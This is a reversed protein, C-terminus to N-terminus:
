LEDEQIKKHRKLFVVIAILSIVVLMGLYKYLRERKLTNIQAMSREVDKYQVIQQQDYTSLAEYAKLIKKVQLEDAITLESFPYIESLIEENLRKIADQQKVIQEYRQEIAQELEAYDKANNAETWLKKYKALDVQQETSIAQSLLQKVRVLDDEKILRNSSSNAQFYHPFELKKKDNSETTVLSPQNISPQQQKLTEEFLFYNALYSREDVPIENVAALAKKWLQPQKELNAIAQEAVLIAAKEEKTQPARFDYLTREGILERYLAVFAYLAQESAMSNSEDPLSTPNEKAYTKAHIFGGDKNEYSMLGDIVTQQKKIFRSDKELDIHLSSLAVVVQATSEANSIGGSAFDGNESQEKSLWALSKNVAQQISLTQQKKTQKNRFSFTESSNYYPALATLAMATMDVDSHKQDLAFGGEKLQLSLIRKIIDSRSEYATEPISYRLSDVTILGWILGNIGQTGLDATRGRNYTGDAILNHMGGIKTPDGGAALYALSIRHWETAKSVSLQGREKYRQQVNQEIVARYAEYDDPYGARGMAFVYWDVVSNGANKLFTNSFLPDVTRQASETKKWDIIQEIKEKIEDEDYDKAQASNSGGILLLVFTASLLYNRGSKKGFMRARERKKM